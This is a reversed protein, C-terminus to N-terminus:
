VKHKAIARFAREENKKAQAKRRRRLKRALNFALTHKKDPRSAVTDLQGIGAMEENLTCADKIRMEGKGDLRIAQTEVQVQISENATDETHDHDPCTSSVNENTETSVCTGYKGSAM